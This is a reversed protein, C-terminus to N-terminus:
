GFRDQLYRMIRGRMVKDHVARLQECCKNLAGIEFEVDAPVKVPHARRIDTGAPVEVFQGAQDEGTEDYGAHVDTDPSTVPNFGRKLVGMVHEGLAARSWVAFDHNRTCHQDWATELALRIQKESWAPPALAPDQGRLEDACMDEPKSDYWRRLDALANSLEHRSCTDANLVAKVLALGQRGHRNGGMKGEAIEVLRRCGAVTIATSNEACMISILDDTIGFFVKRAWQLLLADKTEQSFDAVRDQAM